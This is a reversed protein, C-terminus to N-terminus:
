ASVYLSRTNQFGSIRWIQCLRNKTQKNTKNNNQLMYFVCPQSTTDLRYWATKANEFLLKVQVYLCTEKFVIVDLFYLALVGNLLLQRENYWNCTHCDSVECIPWQLCIGHPLKLQLCDKKSFVGLSCWCWVGRGFLWSSKKLVKNSWWLAAIVSSLYKRIGVCEFTFHLFVMWCYSGKVTDTVHICSCRVFQDNYVYKMWSCVTKKSFVELLLSCNLLFLQRQVSAGCLLSCM